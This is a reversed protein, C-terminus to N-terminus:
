FNVWDDKRCHDQISCMTRQICVLVLTKGHVKKQLFYMTVVDSDLIKKTKCIKCPCRIDGGNINKPNFLIYNIFNEIENCHDM